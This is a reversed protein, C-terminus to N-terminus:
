YGLEHLAQEAAGTVIQRVSTDEGAAAKRLRTRLSAPVQITLHRLPEDGGRQDLTQRMSPEQDGGPGDNRPAFSRALRKQKVM